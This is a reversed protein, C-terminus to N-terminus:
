RTAQSVRDHLRPAAQHAINNKAQYAGQYAAKDDAQKTNAFWITTQCEDDGVQDNGRNSGNDQDRQAPYDSSLPYGGLERACSRRDASEQPPNVNYLYPPVM